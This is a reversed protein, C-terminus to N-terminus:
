SLIITDGEIFHNIPMMNVLSDVKLIYKYTIIKTLFNRFYTM